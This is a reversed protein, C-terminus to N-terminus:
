ILAFSVMGVYQINQCKFIFNAKETGINSSCVHYIHRFDVLSETLVTALVLGRLTVCYLFPLSERYAWSFHCLLFCLTDQVPPRPSS